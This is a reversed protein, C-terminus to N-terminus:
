PMARAVEGSGTALEGRRVRPLRPVLLLETDRLPEGFRLSREHVGHRPASSQVEARRRAEARLGLNNARLVLRYVDPLQQM